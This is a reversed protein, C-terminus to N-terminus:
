NNQYCQETCMRIFWALTFACPGGVYLLLFLTETWFIEIKRFMPGVGLTRTLTYPVKLANNVHLLACLSVLKRHITSYRAGNKLRRGSHEKYVHAHTSVYHFCKIMFIVKMEASDLDKVLHRQPGCYAPYQIWRTHRNRAAGKEHQAIYM